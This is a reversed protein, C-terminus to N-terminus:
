QYKMSITNDNNQEVNRRPAPLILSSSFFPSPFPSPPCSKRYTQDCHNDKGVECLPSYENWAGYFKKNFAGCPCFFLFPLPPPLSLDLERAKNDIYASSLPPHLPFFTTARDGDEGKAFDSTERSMENVSVTLPSLAVVSM